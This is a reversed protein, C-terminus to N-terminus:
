ANNYVVFSFTIGNCSPFTGQWTGDAGCTLPSDGTMVYGVVCRM